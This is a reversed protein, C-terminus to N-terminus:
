AAAKRARKEVKRQEVSANHAAIERQLEADMRPPTPKYRSSFTQLAPGPLDRGAGMAAIMAAAALLRGAGRSGFDRM